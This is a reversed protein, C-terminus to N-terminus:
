FIKFNSFKPFLENSNLLKLSSYDYFVFYHINYLKKKQQKKRRDQWTENIKIQKLLSVPDWATNAINWSHFPQHMKSWRKLVQTYDILFNVNNQIDILVKFIEDSKSISDVCFYFWCRLTSLTAIAM